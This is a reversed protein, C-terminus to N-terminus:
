DKKKDNLSFLSLNSWIPLHKQKLKYFVLKKGPIEEKEVIDEKMLMSLHEFVTAKSKGTIKSLDTITRPAKKLAEITRIRTESNLVRILSSNLDYYNEQSVLKFSFLTLVLLVLTLVNRYFINKEIETIKDSSDQKALDQVHEQKNIPEVITSGEERYAQIQQTESPYNSSTITQNTATTQIKLTGQSVNDVSIQSEKQTVYASDKTLNHTYNTEQKLSEYFSLEYSELLSVINIALTILILIFPIITLTQKYRFTNAQM